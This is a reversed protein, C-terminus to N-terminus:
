CAGDFLNKKGVTRRKRRAPEPTPAVARRKRSAQLGLAHQDARLLPEGARHAVAAVLWPAPVGQAEGALLVRCLADEAEVAAAMPTLPGGENHAGPRSLRYHARAWARIAAELEEVRSM